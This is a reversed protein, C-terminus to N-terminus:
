AMQTGEVPEFIRTSKRNPFANLWPPSTFSIVTLIFFPSLVKVLHLLFAFQTHLGAIHRPFAALLKLLSAPM